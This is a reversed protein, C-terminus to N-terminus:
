PTVAAVRATAGHYRGRRDQQNAGRIAAIFRQYHSAAVEPQLAWEACAFLAGYLYIHPFRTLVSNTTATASLPTLTQYYLFEIEYTDDPIRDFEIQNAITYYCPVGAVDSIIMSEPAQYNMLFDGYSLNLKVQRMQLYRTPLAEYRDATSLTGTARAEMDRIRLQADPNAYMLSEAIDIFDDVLSLIDSRKSWEIISVKLNAYSDLSM